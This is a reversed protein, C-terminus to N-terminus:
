YICGQDMPRAPGSGGAAGSVAPTTPTNSASGRRHGSAGTGSGASPDEALVRRVFARVRAPNVEEVSVESGVVVETGAGETPITAGTINNATLNELQRALDVLRLGNDDVYFAGDIAKILSNLKAPNLLVGASTIKKFAAALFYRQRTERGLDGGKLNHRQRVFELVQVPTLDHRGASMKFDSGVSEGSHRINYAHTDDTATCLDVSIGGIAKAIRYFGDFGVQVYHDIKLGTLRSVTAVVLDAGAARRQDESGGAASYGDAYAANIKNKAWGGPIDVYSDRPISIVTARSGDAPVHIVMITDTSLSATGGVSLRRRESRSLGARSDIGVVLINQEKGPQGATENTGGSPPQGLHSLHLRQLGRDLARYQYWGYGFALFLAASTTAGIVRGVVILWQRRRSAARPSAAPEDAVAAESDDAM